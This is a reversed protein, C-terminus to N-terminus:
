SFLSGITAFSAGVILFLIIWLALAVIGLVLGTIAMGKIGWKKYLCIGGFILGLISAVIGVPTCSIVIGIIGLVLAAISLGKKSQDFEDEM